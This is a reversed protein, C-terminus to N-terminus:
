EKVFRQGDFRYRGVLMKRNNEHYIEITRGFQPLIVTIIYDLNPRPSLDVPLVTKTV